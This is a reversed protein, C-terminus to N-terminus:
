HEKPDTALTLLLPGPSSPDLLTPPTGGAPLNWTRCTGSGLDTLTATYSATETARIVTTAQQLTGADFSELLAVAQRPGACWVGDPEGPGPVLRLSGAGNLLRGLHQATRGALTPNYRRDILGCRPFYGRDQEIFTDLVVDLQPFLHAALLAEAVRRAAVQPDAEPHAPIEGALRVHPSLRLGTDDALHALRQLAPLPQDERGIRVVLGEVGWTALRAAMEAHIEGPQFGHNLVHAYRGGGADVDDHGRLKSLLLPAHLERAFDALSDAHADIPSPLILEVAELLERAQKLVARDEPGPVGFTFPIFRHGKTALDRARDGTDGGALDALPVRLTRIGMEWLALLPYDNRARKRAFEDVGGTYPIEVTEAWAHRLDLTLPSSLRHNPGNPPLRKESNEAASSSTLHTTGGTRHMLPVHGDAYVEVLFYGLKETDNRGGDTDAPQIRAFESYDSRVFATSPLAYLDINGLRNYFFNHVHGAFVAEVGHAALLSLLWSRGPEDLNDYHGPEAPDLVYPPYHLFVFTREEQNEALERSLWQAQERESPFGTNILQANVIVFHCKKHHFSYYSRGFHKEYLTIYKETVVAAPTWELPKDGVDHNGPVLHLPPRLASAMEHFNQAATAYTEQAPVPHIIDGLHIVFDPQHANLEQMVVRARANAMRNVEWPSSSSDEDPNVHSDAIVAFTWLPEATYERGDPAGEAPPTHDSM